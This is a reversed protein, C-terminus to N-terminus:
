QGAEKRSRLLFTGRGIRPRWVARRKEREGRQMKEM